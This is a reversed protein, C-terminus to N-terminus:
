FNSLFTNLTNNAVAKQLLTNLLDSQIEVADTEATYLLYSADTLNLLTPLAQMISHRSKLSHM